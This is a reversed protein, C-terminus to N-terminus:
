YIFLNLILLSINNEENSKLEKLLTMYNEDNINNIFWNLNNNEIKSTIEFLNERDVNKFYLSLLNYDSFVHQVIYNLINPFDAAFIDERIFILLNNMKNKIDFERFFIQSLKSYNMYCAKIYCQFKYTNLLDKIKKNVKIKIM